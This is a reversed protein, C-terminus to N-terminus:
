SSEKSPTLKITGIANQCIGSQRPTGNKHHFSSELFGIPNCILSCDQSKAVQKEHALTAEKPFNDVNKLLGTIMQVDKVHKMRLDRISKRYCVSNIM